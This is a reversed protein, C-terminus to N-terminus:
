VQISASGALQTERRARKQAVATGQSRPEPFALPEDSQQSEDIEWRRKRSRSVRANSVPHEQAAQEEEITATVEEANKAVLAQKIAGTASNQAVLEQQNKTVAMRTSRRAPAM